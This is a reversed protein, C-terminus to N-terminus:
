FYLLPIMTGTNLPLYLSYGHLTEEHISFEIEVYAWDGSMLTLGIYNGTDNQITGGVPWVTNGNHKKLAVMGNTIEQPWNSENYVYFSVVHRDGRFFGSTQSVSFYSFVLGLETYVPPVNYIYERGDYDDSKVSYYEENVESADSKQEQQKQSAAKEQAKKEEARKKELEKEKEQEKEKKLQAQREKEEKREEERARKEEVAKKAEEEKAEETAKIDAIKALLQHAEEIQDNEELVTQLLQEAENYKKSKIKSEAEKVLEKLANEVQLKNEKEIYQHVEAILSIVKEEEPHNELILELETLAEGYKKDKIYREVEKLQNKFEEEALQLQEQEEILTHLNSLLEEAEKLELNYSLARELSRVAREYKNEEMQTQASALLEFSRELKQEETLEPATFGVLFLLVIASISYTILVKKRTKRQQDGWRIVWRPRILGIVIAVISLLFLLAFIATWM